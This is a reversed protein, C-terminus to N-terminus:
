VVLPPAPPCSFSGRGIASQALGGRVSMSVRARAGFGFLSVNHVLCCAHRCAAGLQAGRPPGCPRARSLLSPPKHRRLRFRLLDLQHVGVDRHLGRDELLNQLDPGHLRPWGPLALSGGERPRVLLALLSVDGLSLADHGGARPLGHGDLLSVEHGEGLSHGAHPVHLLRHLLVVVHESSSPSLLPGPAEGWGAPRSFDM